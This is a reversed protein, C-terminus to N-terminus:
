ANEKDLPFPILDIQAGTLGLCEHVRQRWTRRLQRTLRMEARAKARAHPCHTCLFLRPGFQPSSFYLTRAVPGEVRVTPAYVIGGHVMAAGDYSTLGGADSDYRYTRQYQYDLLRGCVACPHPEHVTEVHDVYGYSM